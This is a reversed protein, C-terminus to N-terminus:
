EKDNDEIKARTGDARYYYYDNSNGYYNNNYSNYSAYQNASQYAYGTNYAKISGFVDILDGRRNYVLRMNGIKELNYRGYRMFVSGIRTVRDRTDYNIFVNGVRRIRGFADQEIAVGYNVSTREQNRKGATKYYYTTNTQSDQPRTNFDFEGNPFVYFEIGREVFSFPENANYRTEHREVTSQANVKITMMSMLSLATLLTITRM